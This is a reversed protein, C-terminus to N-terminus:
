NCSTGHPLNARAASDKNQGMVIYWIKIFDPKYPLEKQVYARAEEPTKMEYFLADDGLGKYVQPEWTTLLPGTMYVEPANSKNRFSDRQKLFHLTSGVDIVSTIGASTYRRLFSEMNQHTWAIEQEYPQYKRLDIADPRTYMGGSQSFHIHADVFGPMLWKGTGDIEQVGAPASLKKGIATVAGNQVLLDQPPLIKKNEVDVISTNRILLQAKTAFASICLLLLLLLPKM